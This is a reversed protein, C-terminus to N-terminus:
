PITITAKSHPRWPKLSWALRRISVCHLLYDSLWINSFSLFSLRLSTFCSRWQWLALYDPLQFKLENNRVKFGISQEGNWKNNFTVMKRYSILYTLYSLFYINPMYIQFPRALKTLLPCNRYFIPYKAWRSLRSLLEPKYLNYTLPWELVYCKNM